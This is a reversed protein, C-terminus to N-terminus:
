SREAEPLWGINAEWRKSSFRPDTAVALVDAHRTLVWAARYRDWHVPDYTRLEHYFPYPDALIEPRFLNTLNLEADKDSVIVKEQIMEIRLVHPFAPLISLM